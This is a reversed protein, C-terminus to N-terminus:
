VAKLERRGILGQYGGNQKRDQIKVGRPKDHLKFEYPIKRQIVSKIQKAYHEWSEDM